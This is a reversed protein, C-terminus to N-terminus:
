DLTTSWILARTSANVNNLQTSSLEEGVHSLGAPTVVVICGACSHGARRHTSKDRRQIAECDWEDSFSVVLYRFLSSNGITSGKTTVAVTAVVAVNAAPHQQSCELLMIGHTLPLLVTTRMLTRMLKKVHKNKNTECFRGFLCTWKQM